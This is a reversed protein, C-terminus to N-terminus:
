RKSLSPLAAGACALAVTALVILGTCATRTRQRQRESKDAWSTYGMARTYFNSSLCFLCILSFAVLGTLGGGLAWWVRNM